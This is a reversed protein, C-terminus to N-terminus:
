FHSAAQRRALLIQRDRSQGLTQEILEILEAEGTAGELLKSKKFYGVAGARKLEGGKEQALQSLVIVPIAATTPDRKMTQLVEFGSVKPLGLDLLM